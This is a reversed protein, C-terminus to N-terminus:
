DAPVLAADEDDAEPHRSFADLGEIRRGAARLREVVDLDIKVEAGLEREVM